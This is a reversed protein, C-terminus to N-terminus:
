GAKATSPYRLALWTWVGALLDAAAFLLITPRALQLIAFLAMCVVGFIHGHVKWRFFPTMEHRSTQIYFYGLCIGLMAMGRIWIEETTPFGFIPLAINPIFLFTFCIVLMYIGWVFVSIAARSMHM